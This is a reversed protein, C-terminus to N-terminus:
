AHVQINGNKRVRGTQLFRLKGFYENRRENEHFTGASTGTKTLLIKARPDM